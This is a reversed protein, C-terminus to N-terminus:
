ASQKQLKTRGAVGRLAWNVATSSSFVKAVDSALVVVNSGKVYQRAYKGHKGRSFGYNSRM